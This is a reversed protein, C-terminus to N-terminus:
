MVRLSPVAEAEPAAWLQGHEQISYWCRGAAVCSEAKGASQFGDGNNM